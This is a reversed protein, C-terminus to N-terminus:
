FSLSICDSSSLILAAMPIGAAFYYREKFLLIGAPNFGSRCKEKCRDLKPYHYIQLVKIRLRNEKTNRKPKYNVMCPEGKVTNELVEEFANKELNSTICKENTDFQKHLQTLNM